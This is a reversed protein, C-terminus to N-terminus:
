KRGAHTRKDAWGSGKLGPVLFVPRQGFRGSGAMSVSWLRRLFFYLRNQGENILPGMHASCHSKNLHVGLYAPSWGSEEVRAERFTLQMWIRDTGKSFWYRRGGGLRSSILVCIFVILRNLLTGLRTKTKGDTGERGAATTWYTKPTKLVKTEVSEELRSM